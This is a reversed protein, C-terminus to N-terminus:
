DAVELGESRLLDAAVDSDGWNSGSAFAEQRAIAAREEPTQQSAPRNMFRMSHIIEERGIRLSRLYTRLNTLTQNQFDALSTPDGFREKTLNDVGTEFAGVANKHIFSVRMDAYLGTLEAKVSSFPTSRLYNNNEILSIARRVTLIAKNAERAQEALTDQTVRELPPRNPDPMYGLLSAGQAEMETEAEAAQSRRRERAAAELAAAQARGRFQNALQGLRLAEDEAKLAAETGQFRRAVVSLETSAAEYMKTRLFDLAQTEDLGRQRAMAYASREMGTATVGRQFNRAQEQIDREILGEVMASATNPVNSGPWRINAVAQIAAGVAVGLGLGFREAGSMNNFLRNAEFRTDFLEEIRAQHQRLAAEEREQIAEFNDVMREQHELDAQHLRDLIQEFSLNAEKEVKGRESAVTSREDFGHILAEGPDTPAYDTKPPKEEPASTLLDETRPMRGPPRRPRTPEEAAQRAVLDNHQEAAMENFQETAWEELPIPAYSEHVPPNQPDLWQQVLRQAEQDRLFERLEEDSPDSM